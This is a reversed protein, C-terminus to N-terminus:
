VYIRIRISIINTNYVTDYQNIIIIISIPM